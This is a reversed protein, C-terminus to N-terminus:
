LSDIVLYAVSTDHGIHVVHTNKTGAVHFYTDKFLCFQQM